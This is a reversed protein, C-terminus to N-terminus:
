TASPRRLRAPERERISPKERAHYNVAAREACRTGSRFPGPLPGPVAPRGNEVSLDRLYSMHINM